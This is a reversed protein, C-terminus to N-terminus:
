ATLEVRRRARVLYSDPRSDRVSTSRSGRCFIFSNLLNGTKPDGEESVKGSVSV